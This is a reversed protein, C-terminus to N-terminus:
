CPQWIHLKFATTRAFPRETQACLALIAYFVPISLWFCDFNHYYVVFTDLSFRWFEHNKLFFIFRLFNHGCPTWSLATNYNHIFCIILRLIFLVDYRLMNLNNCKSTILDYSIANVTFLYRQKSTRVITENNLYPSYISLVFINCSMGVFIVALIAPARAFLRPFFNLDRLTLV